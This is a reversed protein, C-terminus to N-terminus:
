KIKLRTDISNRNVKNNEWALAVETALASKESAKQISYEKHLFDNWGELFINIRDKLADISVPINDNEVHSKYIDTTIEIVQVKRNLDVKQSEIQNVKKAPLNELESEAIKIQANKQINDQGKLEIEATVERVEAELKNIDNRQNNIFLKNQQEAVDPNRQDAMKNLKEFCFKFLLIGFAGLIFVLYFNTDTALDTLKWPTADLETQAKIEHISQAIKVAIFTDVVVLGLGYTLIKAWVKSEMIRELCAFILPIFVFISVFIFAMTGHEWAKALADPAFVQPTVIESSTKMKILADEESYLLIYAASSYFIQLYILLVVSFVITTILELWKVGPKVFAHLSERIRMEIEEIKKNLVSMKNDKLDTIVSQNILVEAKLNVMKNNLGNRNAEAEDEITAIRSDHHNQIQNLSKAKQEDIKALLRRKKDEIVDIDNIFGNYLTDLAKDLVNHDGNNSQSRDYGQQRLGQRNFSSVEAAIMSDLVQEYEAKVFAADDLPKIAATPTAPVLDAPPEIGALIARAKNKINNFNIILSEVTERHDTAIISEHNNKKANISWNYSGHLAIRRDIVCFKQHMMGYGVNKIKLVEAGKASLLSFNLKENEQNDAIILEIKIGEELKSLLIDFLDDDTFWSAAVLIQSRANRLESEIRAYIEKNDHLVQQNLTASETSM